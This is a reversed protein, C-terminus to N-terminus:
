DDMSAQSVFKIKAYASFGEPGGEYGIHSHRHLFDGVQAATLEPQPPPNSRPRSLGWTTCLRTDSRM